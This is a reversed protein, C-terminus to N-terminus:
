KIWKSEYNVHCGIKTSIWWISDTAYFKLSTTIEKENMHV